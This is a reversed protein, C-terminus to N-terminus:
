YSKKLTSLFPVKRKIYLIIVFMEASKLCYASSSRVKLKTKDISSMANPLSSLAAVVQSATQICRLFPSVFIRHIPFGTQSGIRQGTQFARVMGDKFLPPDWPRAAKAAWDPDFNDLRHGHRMVYVHQYRDMTLNALLMHSTKNIYICRSKTKKKQKQKQTKVKSKSQMLTKLSVRTTPM